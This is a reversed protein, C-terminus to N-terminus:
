SSGESVRAARVAEGHWGRARSLNVALDVLEDAERGRGAMHHWRALEALALIRAGLYAHRGTGTDMPSTMADTAQRVAALLWSEPDPAIGVLAELANAEDEPVERSAALAIGPALYAYVPERHAGTLRVHDFYRGTAQLAARASDHRAAAFAQHSLIFGFQRFAKSALETDGGDRVQRLLDTAHEYSSWAGAVDGSALQVYGMNHWSQAAAMLDGTGLRVQIAERFDNVPPDDDFHHFRWVGISHCCEALASLAESDRLLHRATEALKIAEAGRGQKEVAWATNLLARGEGAVNASAACESATRSFREEAEVYRAPDDLGLQAPTFM